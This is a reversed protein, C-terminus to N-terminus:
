LPLDGGPLPAFYAEVTADGVEALTAPKWQPAGDKDIIVARIGEPFDHSAVMRNLIRFEMRMCEDMDLMAGTNIQRFTVAVSTPSAKDIAAFATEALAEGAERVQRLGVLLDDLRERSFLKAISFLAGEDTEAQPASAFGRLCKDPAVGKCLADFVAGLAASEVAHTAIGARLADGSHIRAGTLGLFMGYSGKLRSLLFSGGVDPFFGIGVEPMAFLAKETMVRHSGHCSIGVGGGMVIGDILSVCPKPFRALAANLRYEDAFFAVPATGARMARYADAIDGGASFARGEAKIVVLAVSRDHEWASFAKSLALIMGHTVANLANPRTLTIVGAVGIREFRIEDAGGFDM